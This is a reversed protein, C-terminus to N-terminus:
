EQWTPAPRRVQCKPLLWFALVSLTAALMLIAKM